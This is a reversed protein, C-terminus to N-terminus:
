QSLYHPTLSRKVIEGMRMCGNPEVYLLGANFYCRTFLPVNFSASVIHGDCMCWEYCLQLMSNREVSNKNIVWNRSSQLIHMFSIGYLFYMMHLTWIFWWNGNKKKKLLRTNKDEVHPSWFWFQWEVGWAKHANNLECVILNIKGKIVDDFKLHTDRKSWPKLTIQFCGLQRM